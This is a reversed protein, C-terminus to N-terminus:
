SSPSPSDLQLFVVLVASYRFCELILLTVDSIPPPAEYGATAALIEFPRSVTGWNLVGLFLMLFATIIGLKQDMIETKTLIWLPAILMTIAAVFVSTSAFANLPGDDIRTTTSHAPISPDQGPKRSQFFRTSPIIIGQEM